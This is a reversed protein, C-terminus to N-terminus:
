WTVHYRSSPLIATASNLLESGDRPEPSNGLIAPVRLRMPFGPCSARSSHIRSLIGEHTVAPFEQAKIAAWPLGCIPKAKADEADSLCDFLCDNTQMNWGNTAVYSNVASLANSGVLTPAPVEDWELGFSPDVIASEFVFRLASQGEANTFSLDLNSPDLKQVEQMKEQM